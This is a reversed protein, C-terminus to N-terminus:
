ASRRVKLLGAIDLRALVARTRLLRSRLPGRFRPCCAWRTQPPSRAGSFRVLVSGAGQRLGNRDAWEPQMQSAIGRPM